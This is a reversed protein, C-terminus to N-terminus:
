GIVWFFDSYRSLSIAVIFITSWRLMTLNKAKHLSIFAPSTWAELFFSFVNKNKSYQRPPVKASTMLRAESLPLRKDGMVVCRKNRCSQRAKLDASTKHHRMDVRFSFYTFFLARTRLTLSSDGKIFRGGGLYDTASAKTQIDRM